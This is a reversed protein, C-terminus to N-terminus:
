SLIKILMLERLMQVSLDLRTVERDVVVGSRAVGDRWAPKGEFEACQGTSSLVPLLRHRECAPLDIASAHADEVAEAITTTGEAEPGLLRSLVARASPPEVIFRTLRALEVAMILPKRSAAVSAWAGEELESYGGFAWWLIDLEEDSAALRSNLRQSAQDFSRKITELAKTLANSMPAAENHTTPGDDEPFSPVAKTVGALDTTIAFDSRARLVESQRVVANAALYPLDIVETSLGAWAASLVSQAAVLSRDSGQELLAATVIGAVIRTELDGIPCGFTDDRSAVSQRILEYAAADEISHALLVVGMCQHSNLAPGLSKAADIIAAQRDSGPQLEVRHLWGPVHEEFM